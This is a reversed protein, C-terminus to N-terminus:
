ALSARRPSHKKGGSSAGGRAGNRAAACRQRIIRAKRLENFTGPTILSNDHIGASRARAAQAAGGTSSLDTGTVDAIAAVASAVAAVAVAVLLAGGALAAM